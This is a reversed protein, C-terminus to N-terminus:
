YVWFDWKENVLSHLRPIQLLTMNYEITSKVVCVAENSLQVHCKLILKTNQLESLFYNQLYINFNIEFFGNM